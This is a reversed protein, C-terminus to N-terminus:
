LNQYVKPKKSKMNSLDIRFTKTEVMTLHRLKWRSVLHIRPLKSIRVVRCTEMKLAIMLMWRLCCFRSQITMLLRDKHRTRLMDPAVENERQTRARASSIQILSSSTRPQRLVGRLIVRSERKNRRLKTRNSPIAESPSPMRRYLIASTALLAREKKTALKGTLNRLGPHAAPLSTKRQYLQAVPVYM